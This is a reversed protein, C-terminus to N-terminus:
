RVAHAEVAESDLGLQAAISTPDFYNDISAIKGDRLRFVFCERLMVHRGSARVLGFNPSMMDATHTGSLVLEMVGEAGDPSMFSGAIDLHVDPFSDRLEWLYAVIRDAGQLVTGHPELTYTADDLFLDRFRQINGRNFANLALSAVALASNTRQM